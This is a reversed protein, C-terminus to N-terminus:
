EVVIYKIWKIVSPCKLIELNSSNHIASSHINKFMHKLLTLQATRKSLYKHYWGSHSLNNTPETKTFIGLYYIPGCHKITGTSVAM